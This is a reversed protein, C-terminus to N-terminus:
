TKKINKIFKSRQGSFSINNGHIYYRYLPIPLYYYKYKKCLRTILDFDEGERLKPNYNGVKKVHETNFLVGAGHNKLKRLNNIKTITQKLGKKDVRFHDCNVFAYDENNDLIQCMFDLAHMNLFDDSDVKIFYKGRCLDVAKRSSFGIGKNKDNKFIKLNKIKMQKVLKVSDDTSGDDIFIIETTKNNFLIQDTCSRISRDLFQNRNYNLILVSIDYRYNKKNKLRM